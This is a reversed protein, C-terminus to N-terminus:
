KKLLPILCIRIGGRIRQLALDVDRMLFIRYKTKLDAIVEDVKNRLLDVEPIQLSDLQDCMGSLKKSANEVVQVANGSANTIRNKMTAFTQMRHKNYELLVTQPLFVSDKVTKLVNLAFDSFQPSYRYVNLLVNTDLVIIYGAEILKKVDPLTNEAVEAQSAENTERM